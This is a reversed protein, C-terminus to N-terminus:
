HVGIGNGKPKVAHEEKSSVNREGTGHRVKGESTHTEDKLNEGSGHDPLAQEVCAQLLRALFPHECRLYVRAHINESM